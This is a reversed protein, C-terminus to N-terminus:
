PLKVSFEVTAVAGASLPGSLDWQISGSAGVIPASVVACSSLGGPLPTMCRASVFVTYAPTMDNIQINNLGTLGTNSVDIRYTMTSGPIVSSQSQSKQLVLPGQFEPAVVTISDRVIAVPEQNGGWFQSDTWAASVQTTALLGTPTGAPVHVRKILCLRAGAMVASTGAPGEGPDIQGNCNSDLLLAIPWTGDTSTTFSVSGATGATWQHLFFVVSGPAASVSADSVLAQGPVDAFNLGSVSGASTVTISLADNGVQYQASPQAGISRLGSPNIERVKLPQGYLSSPV